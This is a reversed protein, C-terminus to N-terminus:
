KRHHDNTPTTTPTSREPTWGQLWDLYKQEAARRSEEIFYIRDAAQEAQEFTGGSALMALFAATAEADVWWGKGAYRRRPQANLTNRRGRSRGTRGRDSGKGHTQPLGQIGRLRDHKAILSLGWLFLMQGGSTRRPTQAERTQMDRLADSRIGGGRALHFVKNSIAARFIGRRAHKRDNKDGKTQLKAATEVTPLKELAAKDLGFADPVPGASESKGKIEFQSAARTEDKRSLQAALNDIDQGTREQEAWKEQVYHVYQPLNYKAAPGPNAESWADYSKEASEKLSASLAEYGGSKMMWPEAGKTTKRAAFVTCREKHRSLAVYGSAAKWHNSHLLYTLDLTQGQGKYITGAYGYQIESFEGAERNTGYILTLTKNRGDKTDLRITLTKGDIKEVTGIAGAVLGAERDIRSRATATFQVRDGSALKIQKHGDQLLTDPGLEGRQRRIDRLQSNLADVDENTYAFVFRKKDPDAASDDAWQKILEAKAAEDDSTWKIAGISDFIKLADAFNGKHMLNFATKQDKDAVRYVHRLEAAGHDAQLKAFMGGREISALQAADGVLLVKTGAEAARDLIAALNRTGLMAAEDIVLVTQADLSATGRDIKNILSSLTLSTNLGAEKLGKVVTHTWAAGIVKFGDKEYADNIAALTTSKGTGAEGSIIAFGAGSTAHRVAEAQEADLHSHKALTAATTEPSVKFATLASLKRSDSLLAAEEELVKTTTYRLGPKGNRGGNPDNLTVISPHTLIEEARAAREKKDKYEDELAYLLDRATFTSRMDTLTSILASKKKDDDNAAKDLGAVGHAKGYRDVFVLQGAEGRAPLFSAKLFMELRAAPELEASANWLRELHDRERAYRSAPTTQEFAPKFGLERAFLDAMKKCTKKSMPDPIEGTKMDVRCVGVHYHPEGDKVHQQLIWPCNEYGLSKMLRPVIEAAAEATLLDGTRTRIVIHEIGNILPNKGGRKTAALAASTQCFEDVSKAGINTLVLEVKENENRNSDEGQLYKSFQGFGDRRKAKIIM